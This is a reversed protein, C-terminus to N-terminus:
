WRRLTRNLLAGLSLLASLILLVNRATKQKM